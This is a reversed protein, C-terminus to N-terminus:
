LLFDVCHSGRRHVMRVKDYAGNEVYLVKEIGKVKAAEDAVAKVGSGAVFATVSGGLKAGATIAALSSVNLKGERQELVALTSLLRSLASYQPLTTPQTLRLQTRAQRLVSKRAVSFM